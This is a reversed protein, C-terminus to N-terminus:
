HPTAADRRERDVTLLDPAHLVLLPVLAATARAMPGHPESGRPRAEGPRPPPRRAGDPPGTFDGGESHRAVSEASDGEARAVSPAAREPGARRDGRLDRELARARDDHHRARRPRDSVGHLRGCPYRSEPVRGNASYH